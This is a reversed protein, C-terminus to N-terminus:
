QCFESAVGKFDPWGYHGNSEKYIQVMECYLRQEHSLEDGNTAVDDVMWIFAGVFVLTIVVKAFRKIELM